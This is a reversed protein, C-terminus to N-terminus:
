ISYFKIMDERNTIGFDSYSFEDMNSVLEKYWQLVNFINPTEVRALEAIQAIITLGYGFDATFYRSNFDPVFGGDTEIAPTKLGKFAEISCIKKTMSSVDPSEYHERLSKVDSLDFEKLAACIQQVEDDCKLLLESSADDWEEYFLPLSKYIVGEQYDAFISKLRTTHLIPNSPTLTMSLFCSIPKCPMDFIGSVVECCQVTMAHPLAAVHLEARYGISRVIKGYEVLRAVAPVREIAFFTSGREICEKFACESGGNGPVVGILTTPRIYPTIEDATKKMLTSPVTILVHDADAMAEEASSTAKSLAGRMVVNGSEDVIQLESDFENPRSTYMTVKHGAHACHVAFQTGINGGGVITINM